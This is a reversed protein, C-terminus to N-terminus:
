QVRLAQAGLIRRAKEAELSRPYRRLIERWAAGDYRLRKEGPEFEFRIGQRNFRDLGVYNLFFSREPAGSAEIEKAELRRQAERSLKEAAVDAALAYILLVTPRLPSRPFFDLFLRARVIRDFEESALILQYLRRDDGDRTPSSVAERQLWGRTRRTVNVRYFAVGDRETVGRIAILRGRRLRQILKGSLTPSERLAALREDVVVAIRGGAPSRRSQALGLTPAISLIFLSILLQQLRSTRNM